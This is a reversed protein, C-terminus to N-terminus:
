AAVAPYQPGRQAIFGAPDAAFEGLLALADPQDDAMVSALEPQLRNFAFVRVAYPEGPDVGLGGAPESVAIRYAGVRRAWVAIGDRELAALGAEAFRRRTLAVIDPRPPRAEVDM